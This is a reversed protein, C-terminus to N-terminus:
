NLYIGFGIHINTGITSFENRNPFMNPMYNIGVDIMVYYWDSVSLDLGLGGKVNMNTTQAGIDLVNSKKTQPFLFTAGGYVRGRAKENTFIYYNLMTGLGFYNINIDCNNTMANGCYAVDLNGEVMYPVNTFSVQYGYLGNIKGDFFAGIPFSSGKMNITSGNTKTSAQNLHVGSFFGMAYEKKASSKADAKKAQTHGLSCLGTIVLIIFFLRRQM